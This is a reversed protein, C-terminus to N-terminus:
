SVTCSTVSSMTRTRLDSCPPRGSQATQNLKYFKDSFSSFDSSKQSLADLQQSALASDAPASFEETFLHSLMEWDERVRIDLTSAWNEARGYCYGYFYCLGNIYPLSM